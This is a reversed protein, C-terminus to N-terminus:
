GPVEVRDEVFDVPHQRRVVPERVLLQVEDDVVVDLVPHPSVRFAVFLSNARGDPPSRDQVFRELGLELYNLRQNAATAVNSSTAYKCRM